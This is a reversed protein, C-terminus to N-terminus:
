CRLRTEIFNLADTKLSDAYEPALIPAARTAVAQVTLGDVERVAIAVHAADATMYPTFHGDNVSYALPYGSGAHTAPSAFLSAAIAFAAIAFGMLFYTKFTRKM